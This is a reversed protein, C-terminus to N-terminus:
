IKWRITMLNYNNLFIKELLCAKKSKLYFCALKYNHTTTFIFYSFDKKAKCELEKILKKGV